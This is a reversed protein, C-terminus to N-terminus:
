AVIGIIELIASLLDHPSTVAGPQLVFDFLSDVNLYTVKGAGLSMEIAFPAVPLGNETYNAIFALNLNSRLTKVELNPLSLSLTGAIGNAPVSSNAEGREELAFIGDVYMNVPLQPGAVIRLQMISSLNLSEYYQKIPILHLKWGSFSPYYSGSEPDYTSLDYRFYQEVGSSDRLYLLWRPGGGQGYIWIGLYKYSSMNWPSVPTYIWEEWSSQNNQFRLSSSGEVYTANELFIGGRGYNTRWNESSDCNVLSVRTTLDLLEAFAGYENTNSVVLHGGSYVWDRLSAVQNPLPDYPLIITKSANLEAPDLSDNIVSYDLKSMMLEFFWLVYADYAPGEGESPKVVRLPSNQVAGHLPPISYITVESNNFVVPLVEILERIFRSQPKELDRKDRIHNLYLFDAHAGQVGSILADPYSYQGILLRPDFSWKDGAFSRIYSGTYSNMYATGSGPPLSYHLFKLAELEDNTISSGFYIRAAYDTSVLTSSVSSVLILATLFSVGSITLVSKLSTKEIRIRGSFAILAYALLISILPHMYSLTRREWFSTYFFTENIFSILQGFLFLLILAIVSFALVSRVTLNTNKWRLILIATGVLAIFFPVGGIAPYVYWPVWSFGSSAFASISSLRLVWVVLVLVYLYFCIEVLRRKISDVHVTGFKRSISQCLQVTKSQISKFSTLAIILVSGAAILYFSPSAFYYYRRIDTVFTYAFTKSFELFESYQRSLSLDIVSVLLLAGILSLAGLRVQRIGRTDRTLLFAFMFAILYVIFIIPDVGHFLYSLAATMTLLFFNFKRRLNLSYTAYIMWWLATYAIVTGTFGVVFPPYFVQFYFKDGTMSITRIWSDYSEVSGFGRLYLAYLWGPGSFLAYSLTALSATKRNKLLSSAMSFFSLISLIILPYLALYANASPVGSTYIFCALYLNFWWPIHLWAFAKYDIFTQTIGNTRWMDTGPGGIFFGIRSYMGILWISVFAMALLVTLAPLLSRSRKAAPESNQPIRSMVRSRLICRLFYSIALGANFLLFLHLFVENIIGVLIASVFGIMTLILLSLFYSAILKPLRSFDDKGIISLLAYGPLFNLSFAAILRAISTLQLLNWEIFIEGEIAPMLWILILSGMFAIAVLSDFFVKKAYGLPKPNSATEPDNNNKSLILEGVTITTFFLVVGLGYKTPDVILYTTWLFVIVGASILFAHKALDLRNLRDVNGL